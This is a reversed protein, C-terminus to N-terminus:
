QSNHKEWLEFMYCLTEIVADSCELLHCDLIWFIRQTCRGLINVLLTLFCHFLLQM